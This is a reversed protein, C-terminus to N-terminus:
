FSNVSWGTGSNGGHENTTCKDNPDVPQSPKDKENM